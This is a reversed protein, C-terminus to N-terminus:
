KAQKMGTPVYTHLFLVFLVFLLGQVFYDNQMAPVLYLVRMKLGLDVLKLYVDYGWDGLIM